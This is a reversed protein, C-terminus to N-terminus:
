RKVQSQNNKRKQEENLDKITQRWFDVDTKLDEVRKRLVTNERRLNQVLRSETKDNM